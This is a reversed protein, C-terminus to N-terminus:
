KTLSRRADEKNTCRKALSHGYKNFPKEVFFYTLNALLITASISILSINILGPDFNMYNKHRIYEWLSIVVPHLLYLSYSITGLHVLFRPPKQILYVGGFFIAIGMLYAVADPLNELNQFFFFLMLVVIPVMVVLILQLQFIRKTDYRIFKEQSQWHDRDYFHRFLVGLFMLSLHYPAAAWHPFIPRMQPYVQLVLLAFLCLITIYLYYQLKRLIGTFLMTSIILYFILETELSWYLGIVFPKQFFAPVMTLNSGVIAHDFPRGHLYWIGWLGLIMSLWYLPYLRFFRKIVFATLAREQHMKISKPIVFGSVLFFITIGMRGIDFQQLSAIIKDSMPLAQHSHAYSMGIHLLMVFLAAIGRLADISRYRATSHQSTKM